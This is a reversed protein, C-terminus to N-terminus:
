FEDEGYNDGGLGSKSTGLLTKMFPLHKLINAYGSAEMRVGVIFMFFAILALPLIGAGAAVDLGPGARSGASNSANRQTASKSLERNL